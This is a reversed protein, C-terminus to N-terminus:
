LEAKHEEQREDAPRRQERDDAEEEGATSDEDGGGEGGAVFGQRRRAPSAEQGHGDRGDAHEVPQERLDESHGERLAPQPSSRWRRRRREARPSRRAPASM